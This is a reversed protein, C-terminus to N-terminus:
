RIPFTSHTNKITKSSHLKESTTMVAVLNRQKQTVKKKKKGEEEQIVKGKGLYPTFLSSPISRGSTSFPRLHTSIKPTGALIAFTSWCECWEFETNGWTMKFGSWKDSRAPLVLPARTCVGAVRWGYLCHLLDPRQERPQQHGAVDTQTGVRWVSVTTLRPSTNQKNQLLVWPHFVELVRQAKTRSMKRCTNQIIVASQIIVGAAQAQCLHCHGVSSSTLSKKKKKLYTYLNQIQLQKNNRKINWNWTLEAGVPAESLVSRFKAAVLRIIAHLKVKDCKHQASM